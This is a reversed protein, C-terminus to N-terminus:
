YNISCKEDMKRKKVRQHEKKQSTKEWMKTRYQSDININPNYNNILNGKIFEKCETYPKNYGSCHKGLLVCGFIAGSCPYDKKSMEGTGRVYRTATPANSPAM